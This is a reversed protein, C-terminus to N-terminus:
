NNELQQEIFYQWDNNDTEQRFTTTTDWRFIEITEDKYRPQLDKLDENMRLHKQAFIVSPAWKDGYKTQNPSYIWLKNVYCVAGGLIM